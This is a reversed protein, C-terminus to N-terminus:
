EDVFIVFIWGEIAYCKVFCSHYLETKSLNLYSQTAFRPANKFHRVKHSHLINTLHTSFTSFCKQYFGSVGFEASSGICVYLCMWAHRIFICSPHPMNAPLPPQRSCMYPDSLSYEQLCSLLQWMSKRPSLVCGNHIM